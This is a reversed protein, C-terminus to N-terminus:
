YRGILVSVTECICGNGGLSGFSQPSTPRVSLLALADLVSDM